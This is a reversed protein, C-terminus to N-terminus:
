ECVQTLSPDPCAQDSSCCAAEDPCGGRELRVTAEGIFERGSRDRLTASITGERCVYCCLQTQFPVRLDWLAYGDGDREMDVRSGEIDAAMLIGEIEVLVTPNPANPNIGEAWLSPVIMNLGNAGLEVAMADGDAVPEFTGDALRLGIELEGPPLTEDPDTCASLM